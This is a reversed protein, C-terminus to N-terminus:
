RVYFFSAREKKTYKTTLDELSGAHGTKLHHLSLQSIIEKDGETFYVAPEIGVKVIHHKQNPAAQNIQIFQFAKGLLKQKACM